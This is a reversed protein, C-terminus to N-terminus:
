VVLILEKLTAPLSFSVLLPFRIFVEQPHSINHPQFLDWESHTPSPFFSILFIKARTSLNRPQLLAGSPDGKQLHQVFEDIVNLPVLFWERPKVVKGFRDKM